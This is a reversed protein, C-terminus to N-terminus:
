SSESAAPTRRWGKLAVYGLGAAVAVPWEIVDAVILAGIGLYVPLGRDPLLRRAINVPLLVADAIAEAPGNGREQDKGASEQTRAMVTVEESTKFPRHKQRVEM